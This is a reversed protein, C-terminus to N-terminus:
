SVIVEMAKFGAPSEPCVSAVHGGRDLLVARLTTHAASRLLEPGAWTGKVESRGRGRTRSESQEESQTM